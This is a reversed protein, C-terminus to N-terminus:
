RGSEVRYELQPDPPPPEVGDMARPSFQRGVSGMSRPNRKHVWENRRSNFSFGRPPFLQGELRKRVQKALGNRRAQYTTDVIAKRTGGLGDPVIPQGVELYVTVPGGSTM